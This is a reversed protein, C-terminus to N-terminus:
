KAHSVKDELNKAVQEKRLKEYLTQLSKYEGMKVSGDDFANAVAMNFEESNLQTSYVSLAKLDDTSANIVNNMLYNVVAFFIASVVLLTVILIKKFGFDDSDYSMVVDEFLFRAKFASREWM